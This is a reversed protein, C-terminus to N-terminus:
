PSDGQTPTGANEPDAVSAFRPPQGAAILLRNMERKLEQVRGERGLTAGHWRQLEALQEKLTDEGHRRETVDLAMSIVLRRGDPLRGLPASSFEWIRTTGSRTRITHDGEYKRHNLGYLADIDARVVHRREGYARETWQEITALEARSYGTIECWTQSVQLVEGDEAHIMVPFPSDLIARRLREESTSMADQARKHETVDRVATLVVRGGRDSAIAASIVGWFPTGDARRFLVEDSEVTGRAELETRIAAAVAADAYFGLTTQGPVAEAAVGFLQAARPNAYEVTYGPLRTVIVAVPMTDMLLRLQAESQALRAQARRSDSQDRFVLVLGLLSGDVDRILSATHAIPRETGDKSLLLPSDGLEGGSGERLMAQVPFEIPIGSAESRLQFVRSLPQGHAEGARWGTLTEATANLMNVRGDPGTTIVADAISQLTIAHSREIALHDLEVRYLARYHARDRSLAFGVGAGAITGLTVALLALLLRSRERWASFVERAQVQAVLMWPSDPITCIAALVDAGTDDHGRVVGRRGLVAMVAPSNPNTIAILLPPSLDNTSALAHLPSVPIAADGERRVLLTHATTYAGPWSQLEPYLRERADVELVLVAATRDSPSSPIGAAPVADNTGERRVVFPVVLGVHPRGTPTELHLDTVVVERTRVAELVPDKLGECVLEPPEPPHVLCVRLQSDFLVARRYTHDALLRDLWSTFMSRTTASDPQALFDLARRAAYPTAHVLAADAVRERRWAAVQRAKLEAVALLGNTAAGQVASKQV